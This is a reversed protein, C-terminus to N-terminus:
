FVLGAVIAFRSLLASQYLEEHKTDQYDVRAASLGASSQLGMFFSGSFIYDVALTFVPSNAVYDFQDGTGPNRNTCTLNMVGAGLSFTWQSRAQPKDSYWSHELATQSTKCEGTYRTDTSADTSTDSSSASLRGTGSLYSLSLREGSIRVGVGGGEYTFSDTGQIHRDFFADYQDSSAFLRLELRSEEAALDFGAGGLALLMLFLFLNKM